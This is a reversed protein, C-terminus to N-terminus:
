PSLSEQQYHEIWVLNLLVLLFTDTWAQIVVIAFQILSTWRGLSEQVQIALADLTLGQNGPMGAGCVAGVQCSPM